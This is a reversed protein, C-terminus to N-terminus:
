YEYNRRRFTKSTESLIDPHNIENGKLPTPKKLIVKGYYPRIKETKTAEIIKM